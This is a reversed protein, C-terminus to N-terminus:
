PLQGWGTEGATTISETETINGATTNGATTNGATTNGATTNQGQAMVSNMSDTILGPLIAAATTITAVIMIM